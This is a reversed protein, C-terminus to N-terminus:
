DGWFLTMKLCGGKTILISNFYSIIILCVKKLLLFAMFQAMKPSLNRRQCIQHHLVQVIHASQKRPHSSWPSAQHQTKCSKQCSQLCHKKSNWVYEVTKKKIQVSNIDDAKRFLWPEIDETDLHNDTDSSFDMERDRLLHRREQFTWCISVYIHVCKRKKTCKCCCTWKGSDTGLTVRTGGFVSWSDVKSTFVSFNVECGSFGYEEFFVQYVCTTRDQTAQQNLKSCDQKTSSSILWKQFMEDISTFQLLPPPEQPKFHKVRELHMCDRGTAMAMFERCSEVECDLVQRNFSKCIHM